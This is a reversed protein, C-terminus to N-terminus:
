VSFDPRKVPLDAKGWELCPRAGRLSVSTGNESISLSEVIMTPSLSCRLHYRDDLARLAVTPASTQVLFARLSPLINRRTNKRHPELPLMQPVPLWPNNDNGIM